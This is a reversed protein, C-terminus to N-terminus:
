DQEGVEVELGDYALEVGAPLQANVVSHDYDHSLHVFITRQPKLEAVVALAADMHFHTPHPEYRVADLFLVDLGLLHPMSEPLIRSVDTVYACSPGLKFALIPLIGHMVALPLVPLDYLLIEKGATLEKLVLQPKSGGPQTPIFCYRFTRRLDDLVDAQAYLPIEADQLYNFARLDDLGYIHDAHSHTYLVADIWRLRNQLAILRLDPPTDIL